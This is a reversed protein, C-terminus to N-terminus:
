KAVKKDSAELAALAAAVDPKTNSTPPATPASTNSAAATARINSSNLIGAVSTGFGGGSHPALEVNGAEFIAVAEAADEDDLALEQLMRGDVLPDFIAVQKPDETVFIPHRVPWTVFGGGVTSIPGIGNWRYIKREKSTEESM